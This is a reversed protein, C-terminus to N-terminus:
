ELSNLFQMFEGYKAPDLSSVNPAGLDTLKLKIRERHDSVKEKLKERVEEIRYAVPRGSLAPDSAPEVVPSAPPVFDSSAGSVAQDPKGEEPQSDPTFLEPDKEKSNKRRRPIPVPEPMTEGAPPQEGVIHKSTKGIKSFLNLLAGVQELDATDIYVEVRAFKSDM